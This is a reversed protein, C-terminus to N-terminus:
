HCCTYILNCFISRMYNLDTLLQAVDGGSLFTTQVVKSLLMGISADSIVTLWENVFSLVANSETEDVSFSFSPADDDNSRVQDQNVFLAKSLITLANTSSHKQCLRGM